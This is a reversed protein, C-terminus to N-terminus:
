LGGQFLKGMADLLKDLMDPKKEVIEDLAVVPVRREGSLAEFVEVEQDDATAYYTRAKSKDGFPEFPSNGNVFTIFDDAMQEAAARQGPGLYENYNQLLFALDLAHSAHGQWPGPWPNPVDFHLLHSRKSGNQLSAWARASTEAPLRFGIDNLFNVIPLDSPSAKDIGYAELIAPIEPSSQGLSAILAKELSESLNDKRPALVTVYFIMGDLRSDGMYIAECWGTGPLDKKLTESNAFMSYSAAARVFDGDVVANIPAPLNTLKERAELSTSQQVLQSIQDGPSLSEIGLAKTVIGYAIEAVQLPVPRILGSGGLAALQKFLAEESQLHLFGSGGGISSGLFTIREPDGGFGSIHKKVWRLALKQDHLGNNPSYGAARMTESTLFGFVGLRYNIGVAVIPKGLLTSREVLAGLDWQPWSGSGTVFGGGHILVVVPVPDTQSQGAGEPTSVNLNLCETDSFSYEPHPLSHQLLLQELDCNQPNAIPLPGQSKAEIPSNYKEKLTGRAFGNSLEAYQIGLYQDVAASAGPRRIGHVLGLTPHQLTANLGAM